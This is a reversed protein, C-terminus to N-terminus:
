MRRPGQRRRIEQFNGSVRFLPGGLPVRLPHGAILPCKNDRERERERENYKYTNKDQKITIRENGEM